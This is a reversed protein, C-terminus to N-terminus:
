PTQPRVAVWGRFSFGAYFLDVDEFGAARLLAEDEDPSLVPLALMGHPYPVGAYAAYRALWTSAEGRDFSHHVLVLRAGPRLRAHVGALTERRTDEDLFHMVLICTAGDFPELPLEEVTGHVLDVARPGEGLTKRALDLMVASPDVGTMRWAPQLEALAKLELGGGAGVILVRGDPPAHEALLLAAMRHLDAFGPVQRPPREAYGAVSAADAFPDCPAPRAAKRFRDEM